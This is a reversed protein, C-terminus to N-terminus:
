VKLLNDMEDIKAVRMDLFKLTEQHKGEIIDFSQKIADKQERLTRKDNELSDITM